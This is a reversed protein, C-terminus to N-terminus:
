GATADAAGTIETDAAYRAAGTVKVRGDAREVGRGVLGTM